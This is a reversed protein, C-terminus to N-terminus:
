GTLEDPPNLWAWTQRTEIKKLTNTSVGLENALAVRSILNGARLRRIELVLEPTLKGARISRYHGLSHLAHVANGSRTALELNEPRNDDKIGNKHNIELAPPIMRQNAVMWVIRHAPAAVRGTPTTVQVRLYGDKHSRGADARRPICARERGGATSGQTMERMRWVRGQEDVSLAGLAVLALVTAENAEM